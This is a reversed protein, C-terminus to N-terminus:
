SDAARSPRSRTSKALALKYSAVNAGQLVVTRFDESTATVTGM